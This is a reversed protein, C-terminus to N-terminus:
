ALGLRMRARVNIPVCRCYSDVGARRNFPSSWPSSTASFVPWGRSDHDARNSLKNLLSVLCIKPWTAHPIAEVYHIIISLDSLVAMAGRLLRLSHALAGLFSALRVIDAHVSPM